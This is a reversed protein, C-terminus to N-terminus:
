TTKFHSGTTKVVNEMQHCSLPFDFDPLDRFSSGPSSSLSFFRLPAKKEQDRVRLVPRDWFFFSWPSWAFPKHRAPVPPRAASGCHPGRSAPCHPGEPRRFFPLGREGCGARWAARERAGGAPAAVPAKPPFISFVALLCSLVSAPRRHM